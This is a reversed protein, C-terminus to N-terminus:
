SSDAANASTGDSCSIAHNKVNESQGAAEERKKSAAM